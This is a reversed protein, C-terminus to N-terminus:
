ALPYTAISTDQQLIGTYVDQHRPQGHNKESGDPEHIDHHLLVHIIQHQYRQLLQQSLLFSPYSHVKMTEM